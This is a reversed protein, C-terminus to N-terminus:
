RHQEEEGFNRSSSDATKNGPKKAAAVKVKATRIVRDELMYGKQFEEIITDEHFKDTEEQMLAEHLTPDFKKGKTEIPKVGKKKLMEYLRALIMEIGKLFGQPDEHKKQIAEVSRELDDLIGLLELIIEENAYKVFELRQRAMRKKANDFEAQLRLLRDWYEESKKAQEQLRRLEEQPIEVLKDKLEIKKNQNKEKELEPM